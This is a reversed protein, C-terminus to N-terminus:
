MSSAGGKNMPTSEKSVPVIGLVSLPVCNSGGKIQSILPKLM